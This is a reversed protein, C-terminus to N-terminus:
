KGVCIKDKMKSFMGEKIGEVKMIDEIKGFGGNKERYSIISEERSEGVGPLTCLEQKGATNIDVLGGSKAETSGAEGTIEVSNGTIGSMSKSITGNGADQGNGPEKGMAPIEVKWGDELELALNVYGASAKQTFGGAAEVAEFVRSGAPLEYVGPKAVEGCIHVFLVSVEAQRMDEAAEAAFGAPFAGAQDAAADTGAMENQRDATEEQSGAAKERDEAWAEGDSIGTERVLEEELLVAEKGSCASLGVTLLIATVAPFLRRGFRIKGGYKSKIRKKGMM